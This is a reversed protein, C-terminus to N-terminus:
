WVRSTRAARGGAGFRGGVAVRGRWERGVLASNGRLGGWGSCSAGLLSYSGSSRTTIIVEQLGQQTGKQQPHASARNDLRSM